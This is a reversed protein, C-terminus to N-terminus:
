EKWVKENKKIKEKNIRYPSNGQKTKYTKAFPSTQKSKENFAKKPSNNESRREKIYLAYCRRPPNTKGKNM